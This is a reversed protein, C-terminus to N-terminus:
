GAAPQRKGVSGAIVGVRASIAAAGSRWGSASPRGCALWAEQSGEPRICGSDYSRAKAPCALRKAGGQPSTTHTAVAESPVKPTPIVLKAPGTTGMMLSKKAGMSAPSGARAVSFSHFMIVRLALLAKPAVPSAANATLATSRARHSRM